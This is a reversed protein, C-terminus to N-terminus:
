VYTIPPESEGRPPRPPMLVLLAKPDVQLHFPPPLRNLEGDVSVRLNPRRSAISVRRVANVELRSNSRWRGLAAQLAALLFDLRGRAPLLVLDLDGQTLDEAHPFDGFGERFSGVTVAVQYYRSRPRTFDGSFALSMQKLSRVTRLWVRLSAMMKGIRSGYPMAERVEIFQPHFGLSVHHLFISRRGSEDTLVGVDVPLVECEALTALADDFGIPIQISRAFLNFTGLPIVGMAKGTGVFIEGASSISGDGGGVIVTDVDPREAHRKLTRSWLKPEVFEIDVLSGIPTVAERIRQILETRDSARAAGAKANVVVVVRGVPRTADRSPADQLRSM